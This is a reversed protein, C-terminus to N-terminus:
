GKELVTDRRIIESRLSVNSIESRIQDNTKKEDLYSLLAKATRQMLEKEHLDVTTLRPIIMKSVPYNSYGVISIDEPVKLGNEIVCHLGGIALHDNSYFIADYTGNKIEPLIKNTASYGDEYEGGGSEMVVGKVKNKSKSIIKMFGEKRYGSGVSTIDHLYVISKFGCEVLYTTVEEGARNRDLSVNFVFPNSLKESDRGLVFIPMNKSACENLVENDVFQSWCVVADARKEYLFRLTNTSSKENSTVIVLDFLTGSIENELFRIADVFYPSTPNDTVFLVTNTKKRQLDIASGNKVYNLENAKERVKRKTKESIENSDNLAMSVSSVSIGLIKAIDKITAM